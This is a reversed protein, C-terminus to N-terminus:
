FTSQMPGQHGSVPNLDFQGLAIIKSRKVSFFLLMIIMPLMEDLAASSYKNGDWHLTMRCVTNNAEKYAQSGPSPTGSVDTDREFLCLRICHLPKIGIFAVVM